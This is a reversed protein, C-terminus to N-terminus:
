SLSPLFAAPLLGRALLFLIWGTAQNPYHRFGHAEKCGQPLRSAASSQLGSRFFAYALLGHENSESYRQPRPSPPPSTACSTRTCEHAQTIAGPSLFWIMDPDALITSVAKSCSRLLPGSVKVV